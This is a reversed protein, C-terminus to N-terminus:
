QKPRSKDSFRNRLETLVPSLISLSLKNNKILKLAYIYESTNLKNDSFENIMDSSDHTAALSEKKVHCEILTHVLQEIKEKRELPHTADNKMKERKEKEIEYARHQGEYDHWLADDELKKDFDRRQQDTMAKWRNEAEESQKMLIEDRIKAEEIESTSERLSSGKSESRAERQQQEHLQRQHADFDRIGGQRSSSAERLAQDPRGKEGDRSGSLERPKM